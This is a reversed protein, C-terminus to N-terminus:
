TYTVQPRGHYEVKQQDIHNATFLIAEALAEM